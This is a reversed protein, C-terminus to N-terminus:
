LVPHKPPRTFKEVRDIFLIGDLHDIEHQFIIAHLGNAEVEVVNGDLDHATVKVSKNRKVVGYVGPVSLCGEESMTTRFSRSVIKPNLYAVPGDGPDVIIIREHVGVQPAAIGCGNEKDMTRVLEDALTKLRVSGFDDASVDVSRVRLEKNPETLVIM